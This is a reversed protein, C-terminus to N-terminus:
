PLGSELHYNTDQPQHPQTLSNINQPTPHKFSYTPKLRELTKELLTVPM